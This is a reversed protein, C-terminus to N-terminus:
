QVRSDTSPHSEPHSHIHEVFRALETPMWYAARETAEQDPEHFIYGLHGGHKTRVMKLPVNGGGKGSKETPFVSPCFLPDDESNVILALTPVAVYYLFRGSQLRRGTIILITLSVMYLLSLLMKGNTTPRLQWLEVITSHMQTKTEMVIGSWNNNREKKFAEFLTELTFKVALPIQTKSQSCRQRWSLSWFYVCTKRCQLAM